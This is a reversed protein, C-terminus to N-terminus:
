NEYRNKGGGGFCGLIQVLHFSANRFADKCTARPPAEQGQIFVSSRMRSCSLANSHNTDALPSLNYLLQQSLGRALLKLFSFFFFCQNQLSCGYQIHFFSLFVWKKGSFYDKESLESSNQPTPDAPPTESPRRAWCSASSCLSESENKLSKAWTNANDRHSFTGSWRFFSPGIPAAWLPSHLEPFLFNVKVLKKEGLTM